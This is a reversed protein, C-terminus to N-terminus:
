LSRAIKAEDFSAMECMIKCATDAMDIALAAGTGEGLRMNFDILPLLDMHSLAAKHAIEVSQHGAILYGQINPNILYAILGAATSIVGDLVVATKKSAAALVAGVIGAIEFGGIKHLVDLGDKPDLSHFDLVKKIVKTKHSLGKNDVGTGRGTAQEPTIGAVTCIISSAATTNGIGMEGLGVIDIPNRSYTELFVTMGAEIAKITQDLSMAPELAFNKTGKAIKKSILNRHPQFDTDVGMDVVKMEIKHHRCLVNIAAGGNLFNKVMQGTVEAPYASVGEETVGHDGAFVFLHKNNLTPDLSDQILCMKVALGELRGLAGLPKTKEDMKATAESALTDPLPEIAKKIQQFLGKAKFNETEMSDKLIAHNKIADSHIKGNSKHKLDVIYKLHNGALVIPLLEPLQDLSVVDQILEALSEANAQIFPIAQQMHARTMGYVGTLIAEKYHILNILNTELTENKSLGSFFSLQGSKDLKTVAQAFAVFDACCNIIIEYESELTEKSCTVNISRTFTQIHDIKTQNKELIHVNLQKNKAFLATILGMTGAGYILIRQGPKVSLKEFANIVCAVPEAFCALKIDMDEPISILSEQPLVAQQAFGGDNHFGTIKMKECLNEKGTTCFRCQGCSKGPWVAFKQGAKDCVVMEHGLVRPFVLDRHGQDWMKADTRCIACALIDVMRNESNPIASDPPDNSIELQRLGTLVIRM